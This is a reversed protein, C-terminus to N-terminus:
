LWELYEPKLSAAIPEGKTNILKIRAHLPTKETLAQEIKERSLTKLPVKARRHLQWVGNVREGWCLYVFPDNKPGQVYGGKFSVEGELRVEVPFVFRIPALTAPVDQTVAKKEQLGLRWHAYEAGPLDVCEFVMDM